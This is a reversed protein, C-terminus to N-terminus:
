KKRGVLRFLVLLGEDDEVAARAIEDSRDAAARALVYDHLLARSEPLPDAAVVDVAGSREWARKWWGISHVFSWHANWTGRLFPPADEASDIERTFAVDAIGVHGGPRVFRAL